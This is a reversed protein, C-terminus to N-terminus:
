DAERKWWENSFTLAAALLVSIIFQTISDGQVVLKILQAAMNLHNSTGVPHNITWTSQLGLVSSDLVLSNSEPEM